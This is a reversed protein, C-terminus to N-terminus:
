VTPMGIPSAFCYSFHSKAKDLAMEVTLHLFSWFLWRSDVDQRPLIILSLKCNSFTECGPPAEAWNLHCDKLAAPAAIM